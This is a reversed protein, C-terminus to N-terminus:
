ASMYRYKENYIVTRIYVRGAIGLCSVGEAMTFQQYERNKEQTNYM